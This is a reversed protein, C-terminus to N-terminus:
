IKTLVVTLIKQLKEPDGGMMPSIRAPDVLLWIELCLAQYLGKEKGIIMKIRLVLIRWNTEM